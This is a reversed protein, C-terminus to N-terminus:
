QQDGSSATLFQHPEVLEKFPTTRTWEKYGAVGGQSQAFSCETNSHGTRGCSYCFDQLREYPFEVWTQESDDRSLWCGTILPNLTHVVVRVRLFGWAIAPNELELVEGIHM